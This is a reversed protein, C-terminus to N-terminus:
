RADHLLGRRLAEAHLRLWIAYGVDESWYFRSVSATLDNHYLLPPTSRVLAFDNEALQALVAAIEEAAPQRRDGDTLRQLMKMATLWVQQGPVNTQQRAEPLQLSCGIRRMDSLRWIPVLSTRGYYVWLRDEAIAGRLAKCLSDAAPRDTQALLMLIHMQIAVDPPNPDAGPDICRFKGPQGLWTRYLGESTRYEKLTRIAKRRLERDGAPPALRWALATDDSDPTIPCLGLATMAPGDPRGHYRVLGTAEIQERLHRRARDISGALSEGGGGELLDIVLSTVYTNMEPTAQEHREGRTYTTLWFGDDQQHHRILSAAVQAMQGLSSPKKGGGATNQGAAAEAQEPAPRVWVDRVGVVLPRTDGNPMRHVTVADTAYFSVLNRGATLRLHFSLSSDGRFQRGGGVPVGDHLLVVQRDATTLGPGPSVDFRIDVEHDGRSWLAFRVGEANGQGLWLFAGEKGGLDEIAWPTRLLAADIGVQGQLAADVAILPLKAPLAMTDFAQENMARAGAVEFLRMRPTSLAVTRLGSSQALWGVMDRTDVAPFWQFSVQSDNQVVVHTIGESAILQRMREANFPDTGWSIVRNAYAAAPAFLPYDLADQNGVLLIRAGAPILELVEEFPENIAKMGVPKALAGSADKLQTRIPQYAAYALLLAAIALALRSASLRSGIMAIGLAVFLSYPGVLFRAPVEAQTMWRAGFLIAALLPLAIVALASVPTLRASPWGTAVNRLLLIMAGVITPIWLLGWLSFRKAVDPLTYVYRGPWPREDEWLLPAGADVNLIAENAAESFQARAASPLPLDPLELLLFGFRVAHTYLVRPTVDAQVIHRIEAPGMPHHYVLTNAILPILLGSLAAASALGAALAQLRQRLKGCQGSWFAILLLSPLVAVPFSRVNIALVTFAGLLFLRAAQGPGDLTSSVAWYAAGLLAVVSWLEPKLGIASSAVLPTSVLVLAGALAFTPGLSLRRLLLYQGAAALPYALWFVLRGLWEVKAFLIPWLFFLESGFPVLHQRINHTTFPLVSQHQMWYIVRSAHYMKEDFGVIPTALQMVASLGIAMVIMMLILQGAPSLTSGFAAISAALHRIPATMGQAPWLTRLGGTAMAVLACILGQILLWALPNLHGVLSALTTIGGLQLMLSGLVIWFRDAGSASLRHAIRLSSWALLLASIAFSMM